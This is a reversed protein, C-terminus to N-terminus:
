AASLERRLAEIAQREDPSIEDVIEVDSWLCYVYLERKTTAGTMALAMEEDIKGAQWDTLADNVSLRPKGMERRLDDSSERVLAAFRPTAMPDYGDDDNM